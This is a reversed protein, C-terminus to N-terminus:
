NEEWLSQYNFFVNLGRLFVDDNRDRDLLKIKTEGDESGVLYINTDNRSESDRLLESVVYQNHTVIFFQNGRSDDKINNTMELMYPEFLNAEPEEFLLVANSNTLMATKYFFLRRLTDSVLNHQFAVFTGDSLEKAVSFETESLILKLNNFALLELFISTLERNGHLVDLLNDGAPVSLSTGKKEKIEVDKNFHYYKIKFILSNSFEKPIDWYTKWKFNEGITPQFIPVPDSKESVRLELEASNENVIFALRFNNNLVIEPKRKLDKDFYLDSFRNLRCISNLRFDESNTLLTTSYLGIAELVNSKGVNPYGIFVNVRRCDKIEAHKISKFNKIEINEIHNM